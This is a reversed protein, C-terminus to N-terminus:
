LLSNQCSGAWQLDDNDLLESGSATHSSSDAPNRLENEAIEAPQEMEPCYGHSSYGIGGDGVYSGTHVVSPQRWAEGYRDRRLPRSSTRASLTSAVGGLKYM